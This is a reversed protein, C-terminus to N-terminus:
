PTLSTLEVIVSYNVVGQSVTATPAIRTLKAPFSLGSLADVSVSADKGLAISFIDTESVLIRAEIKNPDAIQVAVTGKFVEDGGSVNVKTIYGAFPAKIVPSLSQAEALKEQADKLDQRSNQVDLGAYEADTRATEVAAQAEELSKKNQEVALVKQAIELAATTSLRTDTRALVKQLNAQAEELEAQLEKIYETDISERNLKRATVATDLTLQAADVSDQARKVEKIQGLNYEATQLNIEAQIVAMEKVSVQRQATNLDSEKNVLARQASTLARDLSKLQDEWYDIDLRALEAGAEVSDGESVLIEEVIGAMDFALKESNSFALNGTGIVSISINGRQVQAIQPQATPTAGASSACGYSAFVIGSVILSVLIAKLIKM